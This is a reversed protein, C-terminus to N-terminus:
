PVNGSVASRLRLISVKYIDKVPVTSSRAQFIRTGRSPNSGGRTEESSGLDLTDALEVVLANTRVPPNSGGRPSHRRRNEASATHWNWCARM